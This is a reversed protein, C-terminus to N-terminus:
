DQGAYNRSMLITKLKAKARNYQSKSTGESISLIEAIETHDYGELLYLSLVLRYGDPLQNIAAHVRKVDLEYDEQEPQHVVETDPVDEVLHLKRKKLTNVSRNIVIRKLWAGFTDDTRLDGLKSFAQLFSEQLVDEAEGVHNVIRLCINYMARSYLRYLEYQAKRDGTRCREVLTKHIDHAHGAM